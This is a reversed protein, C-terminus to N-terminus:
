RSRDYFLDEGPEEFPENEEETYDEEEFCNSCLADEISGCWECYTAGCKKCRYLEDESEGCIDCVPM